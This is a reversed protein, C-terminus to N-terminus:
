LSYESGLGHCLWLKLMSGDFDADFAGRGTARSYCGAENM